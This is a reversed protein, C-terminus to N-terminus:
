QYYDIFDKITGFKNILNVLISSPETNYDIVSFREIGDIDTFLLCDKMSNSVKPGDGIFLYLPRGIKIDQNIFNNIGIDKTIHIILRFREPDFEYECNGGVTSPIIISITTDSMIPPTLVRIIKPDITLGELKVFFKGVKSKFVEATKIM